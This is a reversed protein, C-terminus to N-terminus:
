AMAVLMAAMGLAMLTHCVADLRVAPVYSTAPRRVPTATLVGGGTASAWASPPPSEEPDTPATPAVVRRAWLVGTLLQTAVFVLNVVVIWTAAPAVAAVEGSGSSAHGAHGAHGGGSSGSLSMGMLAPMAVVMWIMACAMVLHSGLAIVDHGPTRTRGHAVLEVTFSVAFLAFVVVQVVTTLSSVYGWAMGIMALSMLLHFLEVARNGNRIRGSALASWRVLAYTGTLGFLLTFLATPLPTFM